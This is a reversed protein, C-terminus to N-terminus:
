SLAIVALLVLGTAQMLFTLTAGIRRTVFSPAMMGHAHLVRGLTFATVMGTLWLGNFGQLELALVLLIFLPVQETGNGHARIAAKLRTNNGDGHAVGEQIRVRVVNLALILLLAGNALLTATFHNLM